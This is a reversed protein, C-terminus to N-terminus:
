PSQLESTHEESRIGGRIDVVGGDFGDDLSDGAVIAIGGGHDGVERAGRRSVGVKLTINGAPGQHTTGTSINVSGSRFNASDGTKIDIDGSVGITGSNPTLLHMNGSDTADSAGTKIIVDGGTGNLAHGADIEVNGAKDVYRNGGMSKGARVLVNGGDGGDSYDLDSGSGATINVNGGRKKYDRSEGSTITVDGGDTGLDSSCM